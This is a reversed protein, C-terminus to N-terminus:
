VFKENPMNVQKKYQEKVFNRLSASIGQPLYKSLDESNSDAEFKAEHIAKITPNLPFFHEIWHGGKKDKM